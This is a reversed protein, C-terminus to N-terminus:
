AQQEMMDAVQWGNEIALHVRGQGVCYDGAFYLGSETGNLAACNAGSDPLAYRWRQVNAWLLEGPSDPLLQRCLREVQQVYPPMSGAPFSGRAAEDWHAMSWDHAMQATLLAQGAAAHGHKDHECALWSIPHARDSNVLAYWPVAPRATYAFTLSICRRYRAQALENLLQTRLEVAIDSAAVIAASQPAPATLLVKDAVDVVSGSTDFLAYGGGAQAAVRTIEVEHRVTLGRALAKALVNVGGRWCWKADANQTTDGESIQGTTDFTWVPRGIDYAPSGDSDLTGEVLARLPGDPAKIYQAGHDFRADGERRTALRGGVGRSKEVITVRWGSDALARGAALGAVGAGVIILSPKM